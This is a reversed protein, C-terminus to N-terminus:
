QLQAEGMLCPKASSSETLQNSHPKNSLLLQCICHPQKGKRELHSFHFM